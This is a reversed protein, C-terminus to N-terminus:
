LIEGVYEFTLGVRSLAVLLVVAFHQATATMEITVSLAAYVPDFTLVVKHVM